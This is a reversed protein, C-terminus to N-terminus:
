EKNTKKEYDEVAKLITSGLSQLAYTSLRNGIEQRAFDQIINEIQKKLEEMSDGM